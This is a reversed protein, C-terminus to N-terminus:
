QQFPPQKGPWQLASPRTKRPRRHDRISRFCRTRQSPGTAVWRSVRHPHPTQAEQLAGSVESGEQRAVGMGAELQGSVGVGVGVCAPARDSDGGKGMGWGSGRGRPRTLQLFQFGAGLARRRRGLAPVAAPKSRPRREKQGQQGRPLPCGMWGM